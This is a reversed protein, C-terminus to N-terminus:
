VRMPMLVFLGNKDASDQILTPAGSDALMFIIDEGALQNAIDLLYRSNFGIEMPEADYSAGIKDEASGSDPNNVTMVVADVQLALKVARGRETSITSVRDVSAVFEARKVQLKKSNNQPIVRQYDPFVGDILKSTLVVSEMTFRIKADSLEIKVKAEGMEGLLKQLEGVTKRPIIIGPMGAATEPAATEVCALRHGDTAVARLKAGSGDEAEAVHLYIGNLYYRTEETSVAFQTSEVLYKLETAPLEFIHTFGDASLEPFNDRPLSELRFHSRGAAVAVFKGSEELDLAVESGDPLKRIIDYLLHAPVTAAGAQEIRAETEETVELDLDTSKLRIGGGQEDRAEILVNSLIPVTNRREVVRHVRGLSRLLNARDVAIRM